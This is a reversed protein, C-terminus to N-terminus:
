LKITRLSQEAGEDDFLKMKELAEEVQSSVSDSLQYGCLEQLLQLAKKQNFDEIAAITESIKEKWVTEEVAVKKIKNDVRNEEKDLIAEIQLLLKQYGNLLKQYEQDIKKYEGNKVAFEHERALESQKMAGIAAAVSKFAHAEIGYAEYNKELAYRKLDQIKIKGSSLAVQLIELYKEVQNGCSRLGIEVDVGKMAVRQLDKETINTGILGTMDGNLMQKKEEPVFQNMIEHLYKETIPKALFAQFGQELFMRQAQPLVNATLAVAIAAKGYEGLETRIMHLTQVGDLDPMM